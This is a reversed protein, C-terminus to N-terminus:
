PPKSKPYATLVWGPYRDESIVVWCYKNGIKMYKIIANRETNIHTAGKETVKVILDILDNNSSVGFAGKFDNIHKLLHKLGKANDGATLVAIDEIPNGNVKTIVDKAKIFKVVTEEGADLPNKKSYKIYKAVKKLFEADTKDAESVLGRRIAEHFIKAKEGTLGVEKIAQEEADILEKEKEPKGAIGGDEKIDELAEEVDEPNAGNEIEEAAEKVVNEEREVGKKGFWEAVRNMLEKTKESMKGSQVLEKVAAKLASSKEM